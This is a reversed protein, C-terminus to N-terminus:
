IRCKDGSCELTVEKESDESDFCSYIADRIDQTKPLQAPKGSEYKTGQSYVIKENHTVAVYPIETQSGGIKMLFALEKENIDGQEDAVEHYILDVKNDLGQKKLFGDYIRKESAKCMDCGYKGVIHIETGKGGYKLEFNGQGGFEYNGKQRDMLEGLKSKNWGNIRSNYGVVRTIGITDESGCKHCKPAEIKGTDVENLLNTMKVEKILM